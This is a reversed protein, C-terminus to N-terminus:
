CCTATITHCIGSETHATQLEQHHDSFGESVHLADLMFLYISLSQIM